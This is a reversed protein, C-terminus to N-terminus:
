HGLASTISAGSLTVVAAGSEDCQRFTRWPLRGSAVAGPVLPKDPMLSILIGSLLATAIIALALSGDDVFLGVLMRFATALMTM